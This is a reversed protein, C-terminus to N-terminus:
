NDSDTEDEFDMADEGNLTSSDEEPIMSFRCDHKKKRDVTDVFDFRMHGQSTPSSPSEHQQQKQGQPSAVTQIPDVSSKRKSLTYCDDEDDSDDFRSRQLQRQGGEGVEDDSEDEEDGEEMIDDWEEELAGEDGDGDGGDKDDDDDEYYEEEEEEEEDEESPDTVLGLQMRKQVETETLKEISVSDRRHVYQNKYAPSRNIVQMQEFDVLICGAMAENGQNHDKSTSFITFVKGGKSVAVGDAHAEHARM